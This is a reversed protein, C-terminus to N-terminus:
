LNMKDKIKRLSELGSPTLHEKKRFIEVGQKFYSYNFYKFGKLKYNDFLPLIKETIDSLKTVVLNIHDKVEEVVGCGLYTVLNNILFKDRYNLTIKFKLQVTVGLKYASSKCIKIMFCGEAETFGVVWHPDRVNSVPAKPRDM